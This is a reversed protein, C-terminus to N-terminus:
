TRVGSPDSLRIPDVEGGLVAVRAEGVLFLSGAVVVAGGQGAARRALALAEDIDAAVDIPVACLAEIPADRHAQMLAEQHAAERLVQLRTALEAAPLAREQRYATAIVRDARLCLPVAIGALDKDSSVSLVLARPRPLRAMAEALAAAGHPNHAGDLFIAPAAAVREFRGPHRAAALGAARAAADDPLVGRAVLEGIAALAAAANRRQHEGALALGAPVASIEDPGIERIPTAGAALAAARLAPLAAAEGSAGLIAPKGRRFIGAKEVAILELTEGLMAQHDLAVGTVVAVDSEVVNTADLRGGLGVELVTVDPRRRALAQFGIATLQEFFTLERGGAAWVEDAAAVFSEEDIWGDGDAIRERVTALHPSTYQAARLGHARVVQAIMAVTSGKGNTGAVHVITGLRREPNGLRALLARMRELGFVVGARRAGFLEGLLRRYREAVTADAAEVQGTVRGSGAGGMAGEEDATDSSMGTSM